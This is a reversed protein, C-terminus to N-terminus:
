WARRRRSARGMGVVTMGLFTESLMVSELLTRVGRVLLEAGIVM